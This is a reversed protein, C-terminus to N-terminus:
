FLRTRKNEVSLFPRWGFQRGQGQKINGVHMKNVGKEYPVYPAQWWILLLCIKCSQHFSCHHAILCGICLKQPLYTEQTSRLEMQTLSSRAYTIFFANVNCPDSSWSVCVFLGVMLWASLAKQSPSTRKVLLYNLLLSHARNHHHFNWEETQCNM